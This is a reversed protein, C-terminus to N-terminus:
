RFCLDELEQAMEALELGYQKMQQVAALPPRKIVQGTNRDVVSRHYARVIKMMDVATTAAAYLCAPNPNDDPRMDLRM